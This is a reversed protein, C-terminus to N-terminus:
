GLLALLQRIDVPKVLHHDFGAALSAEMDQPRGYGTVAVLLANEMGPLARLRRALENGDMGPLGIDLICAQPRAEVGLGEVYGLASSSLHEIHARHGAGDLMMGLLEAADVNDDVVLVSRGAGAPQPAAAGAPGDADPAAAAAIRPLRVSFCSGQGPGASRVAVTGGHLEVLSKVLALGIGLGGQSRDSSRQAQTFLGFVSDQVEPAMGIGNDSVSLLVQQAQAEMELVIRGGDPTYKAANGLLNALVQVLRKRDGAVLAHAPALHVELRHRRGEVLPRVQEVADAVADKVDVPSNELTVLGRTVRSVDLLDNILSTMHGVQRTVIASTRRVGEADLRGLALLEAAAGIPALPNRLEHALMALFEDKRQAEIRLQEQAQRRKTIDRFFVALGGDMAPYARVEMWRQEGNQLPYLYEVVGPTGTAMARRLIPDVESGVSDPFAEWHDRGVVEHEARAILQLGTANMRTINWDRGVLAFGEAMTDFIYQSQDREARLEAQASAAVVAAWTREATERAMRVDDELWDRAVDSHLSLVIRLAGTSVQPLTLHARVGVAEYAALHGSSRPDAAVDAVVLDEGARLARAVGPGYADIGIETGAVSAVGPRCWDRRALLVGGPERLQAFLVRAVGLWEGLLASAAGVIDEVAMEPRLRDALALAFAQEREVQRLRAVQEDVLRRAWHQETVDTGLAFIGAVAGDEVIPQYIVNIYVQELAGQPGRRVRVPVDYGLYEKGTAYVQDLVEFLRQEALEALAERVPRGAYDRSGLLAVMAENVFEFVHKPGRLVAMFSPAKRFLTQLRDIDARLHLNARTVDRARELLGRREVLMAPGQGEAAGSEQRRREVETVDIPHQLVLEVVGDADAVPTHTITWYRTEFGGGQRPMDYRLLALTDPRGSDIVREISAAMQRETDPDTPFAQLAPRGAIDELRRGTSALYARNADVIVLRRDMVLYPNPSADFLARYRHDLSAM